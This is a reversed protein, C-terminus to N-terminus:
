HHAPRKAYRPGLEKELIGAAEEVREACRVLTEAAARVQADVTAFRRQEVAERVGPLIQAGYGTYLGPAYLLNKYWSRGPLGVPSTLARETGILAQDVPGAIEPPLMAGTQSFRALAEEYRRGARKLRQVANELPAFNFYPVPKQPTPPVFTHRSGAIIRYLNEAIWENRHATEKRMRDIEQVVDEIMSAVHDAFGHFEFPLVDANALRLVVRGGTQFQTTEYEFTPDVFRTFHEFSDYASHYVGYDSECCYSFDMSAIGLHDVFATFDSGSGLPEMSLITPNEVAAGFSRSITPENPGAGLVRLQALSRGLVSVGTQPDTVDRAVESLFRQLTLSGGASLFGRANSDTNVYVAAKRRLEDAHAEAWETSGIFGPEEADWAAFVVTRRPRHGERALAGIVRAEELLAVLGSVPDTAGTVWADHHDGRVIWEDPREAGPLVAIVDYATVQRWDFALKLRVKAPGPGLHYTVPLAGRWAPPAVPGGLAKLFPLADGYSIPLVPIRTLTAAQNRPLRHADATSGESPTLPDGPYFSLDLVSGMQVSQEPRYAGQPYVDGQAYGDLDPDSYLICGLAGHEAAVKPKVGRWAQGYRAIVIRGKVDIGQRELAEYDEPLGYNVYVLDGTVDGDISYANYTPLREAEPWPAGLPPERLQASYQISQAPSLLDLRREKPTPFLIQFEEIRTAYGWSRFLGALFEANEQGYPSGVHHPRAALRQMWLRFDAAKGLSDLQAELKQEETAGPASFGRLPKLDTQAHAAPLLVGALVVIWALRKM